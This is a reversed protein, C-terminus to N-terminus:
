CTPRSSTATCCASRTCARHGGRGAPRSTRSTPAAHDPGGAPVHEHLSLGPVYRTVVYPTEGWPDADLVEAIRPSRVRRLSAVERALRERAEDDGIVHPRLVKLAVRSGDRAQALHVVGMGGEGIQALLRYHGVARGAQRLTRRTVADRYSM